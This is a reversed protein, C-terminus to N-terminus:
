ALDKNENIQKQTVSFLHKGNKDIVPFCIDQHLTMKTVTTSITEYEDFESENEKEARSGELKTERFIQKQGIRETKNPAIKPVTNRKKCIKYHGDKWAKRQCEQFL